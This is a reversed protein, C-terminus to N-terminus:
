PLFVGGAWYAKEMVATMAAKDPMPVPEKFLMQILYPGGPQPAKKTMWTQRFVQNSM